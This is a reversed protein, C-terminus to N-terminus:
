QIRGALDQAATRERVSHLREFVPVAEGLRDRAADSRGATSLAEALDLATRAAEWRASLGGFGELSRSLRSISQEVDDDALAALGELRDAYWPLALLGGVEAQRRAEELIAPAENWAGQEAIIECWAELLHGRGSGGAAIEPRELEARAEEFRGRRALLLASWVAREASPREALKLWEVVEVRRDSAAPDGQVEHLFAAVAIHDSAYGPPQKEREGLLESALAVDDLFEAWRGLRFRAVARWDLCYLAMIPVSTVTAQFGEEALTEADRYRGMHYTCWAAVAHIDGIEIPDALSGVLELRREIVPLWSSYLGRSEFFFGVGDLAASALDPRGLRLAMEAAREGAEKAEIQEEEAAQGQTFTSPFFSRAILLQALEESDDDSVHALGADLYPAVDHETLPSRMTGRGRTAVELARACLRAVDKPDSDGASLRVDIAERLCDWALNGESNLFHVEALAELARSRDLSGGVLSLAVGALGRAAELAHKRRAEESGLLAFRFARERLLEVQTPDRGPDGILGRHAEAYHHSLLEAFEREREGAQEEIWVAVRAHAAARERRPLSEFAVDRTLVHKFAFEREGRISSSLRALVLGRGELRVLAEELSSIDVDLLSAVLGIWFYKGVVAASQLARKELPSLLDMRAALVGQVTDPIEVDDIQRSTPAGDDVRQLRDILHRVIEELFFPNGGGRDLIRERLRDSLDASEATILISVLQEADIPPLPELLVGSFNWRGGGWGPRRMTLERRAPCLFLVSGDVRDALSELLDLMATDAWHIDEIVVIAPGERSVASFYSRWAAFTETRAERPGLNLLPSDAEQLGVTFALAASARQPDSSLGDALLKTVVANIKTTALEPPDSDLVEAHRKLIEALPWYTVGQGYPLCRGRAVWPANPNRAARAEFEEVLRTKGVGADGYITVLHPRAESVVRGYITELLEMEAARGIMPARSRVRASELMPEADLLEFAQFAEEKGKLVLPGIQALRLGRAARATRESVVIQAPDASQELRAAVNVADGSVMGETPTRGTVAVVEGTNLGTRMSLTVGRTSQFATNLDGLRRRMRLAARLARTPDDEHAAPFGFVAMLADGIFKEITGGEAEIEERMADFYADMVERFGEPDLRAGLETSGVLDAFLVTVLKREAGSPTSGATFAGCSPCFGVALPLETGCESCIVPVASGCYACFRADDPLTAGCM